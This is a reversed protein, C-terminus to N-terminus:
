SVIQAKAVGFPIPAMPIIRSEPFSLQDIADFTNELGKSVAM